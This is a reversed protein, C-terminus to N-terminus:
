REGCGLRLWRGLSGAKSAWVAAQRGWVRPVDSATNAWSVIDLAIAQELQTALRDSQSALARSKEDGARRWGTRNPPTRIM